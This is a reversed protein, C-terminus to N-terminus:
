PATITIDTDAAIGDIYYDISYTTEGTYRNYNAKWSGANYGEPKGGIVNGSDDKFVWNVDVEQDIDKKVIHIAVGEGSMVKFDGGSTADASSTVEYNIGKGTIGRSDIHVDYDNLFSEELFPISIGFAHLIYRLIRKLMNLIGTKSEETVGSVSVRCASTVGKIRYTRYGSEDVGISALNESNGMFQDLFEAEEVFEALGNTGRVVSVKMGSGSFGKTIKVRFDFDDGYYVYKNNQNALTKVAYGDGTPMKVLFRNRMLVPSNDYSSKDYERVGVTMNRDATVVYAGTQTPALVEGNENVPDAAASGTKDMDYVEVVATTVDFMENTIVRFIIKEGAEYVDSESIRLPLYRTGDFRAKDEDFLIDSYRIFRGNEAAYCGTNVDGEPVAQGGTTRDYYIYGNETGQMFDPALMYKAFEGTETCRVFYYEDELDIGLNSEIQSSFAKLTDSPGRFKVNYGEESAAFAPVTCSLVLLVALFVSLVKKM